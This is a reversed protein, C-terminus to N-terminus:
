REKRLSLCSRRVWRFRGGGDVLLGFRGDFRTYLIEQSAHRQFFLGPLQVQIGTCRGQHVFVRIRRMCRGICNKQGFLSLAEPSIKSNPADMIDIRCRLLRIGDLLPGDFM